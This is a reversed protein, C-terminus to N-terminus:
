QNDFYGAAFVASTNWYITIENTSFSLANDIFCRAPPNGQMRSRAYEDEMVSNAGGSVLGPVPDLAKNAASPRHHPHKIPKSGVGTVYCQSLANRGLLYHLHDQAVQVYNKDQKIMNAVILYFAVNMVLLNSGWIYADTPLSIRYGDEKSSGALIDAM